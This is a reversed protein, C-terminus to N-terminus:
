GFTALMFVTLKGYAMRYSLHKFSNTCSKFHMYNCLICKVNYELKILCAALPTILWVEASQRGLDLLVKSSTVMIPVHRLLM